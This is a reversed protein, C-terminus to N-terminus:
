PLVLLLVILIAIDFALNVVLQLITINVIRPPVAKFSARTLKSGEEVNELVTQNREIIAEHVARVYDFLRRPAQRNGTPRGPDDMPALSHEGSAFNTAAEQGGPKEESEGGVRAEDTTAYEVGEMRQLEYGHEESSRRVKEEKEETDELETADREVGSLWAEPKDGKCLKLKDVHVLM